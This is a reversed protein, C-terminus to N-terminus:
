GFTRRDFIREIVLCAFLVWSLVRLLVNLLFISPFVSLLVERIISENWTADTPCSLHEIARGTFNQLQSISSCAAVSVRCLGM